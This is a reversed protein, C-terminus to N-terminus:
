FTFLIICDISGNRIEEPDFVSNLCIGWCDNPL